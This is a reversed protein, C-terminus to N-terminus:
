SRMKPGAQKGVDRAREGWGAVKRKIHRHETGINRKRARARAGGRKVLRERIEVKRELM